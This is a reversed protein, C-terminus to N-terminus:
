GIQADLPLQGRKLVCHYKYNGTEELGIVVSLKAIVFVNSNRLGGLLRKV